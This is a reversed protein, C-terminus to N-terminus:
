EIERCFDLTAQVDARSEFPMGVMAFIMRKIGHRRATTAAGLIRENSMRRGLYTKRYEESGSEVGFWMSHCGSAAAHACLEDTMTEPRAFMSFPLAVSRRYCDFLERAYRADYLFEEDWFQ